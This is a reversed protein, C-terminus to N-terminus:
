STYFLTESLCCCALVWLLANRFPSNFFHFRKPFSLMGSINWSFSFDSMVNSTTNRGINLYYVEGAMIWAFRVAFIDQRYHGQTVLAKPQEHYILECRACLFYFVLHCIFFLFSVPVLLPWCSAESLQPHPASNGVTCAICAQATKNEYSSLLPCWIDPSSWSVWEPM